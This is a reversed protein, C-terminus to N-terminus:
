TLIKGGRAKVRDPLLGFLEARHQENMWLRLRLKRLAVLAIAPERVRDAIREIGGNRQLLQDELAREVFEGAQLHEGRMAAAEQRGIRVAAIVGARRRRRVAVRADHELLLRRFIELLEM